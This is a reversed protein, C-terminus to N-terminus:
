KGGRLIATEVRAKITCTIAGRDNVTIDADDVGYEHCIDRIAKEIADGFQAKVISTIDINLNGSGPKISVMIDNSEMTGAIAENIIKM